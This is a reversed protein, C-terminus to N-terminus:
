RYTCYLACPTYQAARVIILVYVMNVLVHWLLYMSCASCCMFLYMLACQAVNIIVLVCLMDLLVYLLLHVSCILCRVYISCCKTCLAYQTVSIVVRLAYRAVCISCCMHLLVWRAICVSSCMSSCMRLLVYRAVSMIVLVNFMDLLVYLLYM